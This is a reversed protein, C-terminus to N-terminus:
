INRKVNMHFIGMKLTKKIKGHQKETTNVIRIKETLEAFFEDITKM